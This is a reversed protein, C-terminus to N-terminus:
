RTPKTQPRELTVETVCRRQKCKATLKAKPPKCDTKPCAYTGPKCHRRHWRGIAAARSRQAAYPLACGVCCHHLRGVTLVCDNDTACAESPKDKPPPTSKAQCGWSLAIFLAPLLPLLPILPRM